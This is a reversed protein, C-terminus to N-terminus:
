SCGLILQFGFRALAGAVLVYVYLPDSSDFLCDSSGASECVTVGQVALRFKSLPAALDFGLGGAFTCFLVVIKKPIEIQVNAGCAELVSARVHMPANEEGSLRGEFEDLQATLAEAKSKMMAARRCQRAYAATAASKPPLGLLRREPEGDGVALIAAAADLGLGEVDEDPQEAEGDPGLLAAMLDLEADLGPDAMSGCPFVPSSGQRLGHALPVEAVCPLVVMCTTPCGLAWM